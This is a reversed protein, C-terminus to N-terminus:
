QFVEVPLAISESLPAFAMRGYHHMRIGRDALPGEEPGIADDPRTRADAVVAHDASVGDDLVIGPDAVSAHQVRMDEDTGAAPDAIVALYMRMGADAAIAEAVGHIRVAPRSFDRVEAIHYDAVPDFDAAIAGDVAGRQCRGVDSGAGLQIIDAMNRVVAVVAPKM